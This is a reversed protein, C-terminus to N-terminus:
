PLWLSKNRVDNETWAIWVLLLGEIVSGIGRQSQVLLVGPSEQIRIFEAFHRPMTGVDRSVLVRGDEAAIRLVESDSTGEPIVGVATRFELSPERRLRGRGIAPSL